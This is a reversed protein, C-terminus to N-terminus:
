FPPIETVYNVPVGASFMTLESTVSPASPTYRQRIPDYFIRQLELTFEIVLSTSSPVVSQLNPNLDCRLPPGDRSRRWWRRTAMSLVGSGSKFRRVAVRLM